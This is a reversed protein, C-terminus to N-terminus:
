CWRQWRGTLVALGWVSYLKGGRTADILRYEINSEAPTRAKAREIFQKSFDFAVVRAGLSAMRRAFRGAGCAIDLVTTGSGIELLRETAPEILEDQYRNGDGIRDDWWEAIKDWVRRTEENLKETEEKDM